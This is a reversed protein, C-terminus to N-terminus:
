NWRINYRIETVMNLFFVFNKLNLFLLYHYLFTIERSDKKKLSSLINKWFLVFQWYYKEVM